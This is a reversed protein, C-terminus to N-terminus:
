LELEALFRNTEDIVQPPIQHRGVFPVWSVPYGLRTFREVIRQAGEFPLVQDVTGHSVLLPIRAEDQTPEEIWVDAPSWMIAARLRPEANQVLNAALMAGQSFGGVVLDLDPFRRALDSLLFKARRVGVVLNSRDRRFWARGGTPLAVPAEPFLLAVEPGVQLVRSLGVLDDGEAGYGHFLVLASKAALLPAGREHLTLGAQPAFEDFDWAAAPPDTSYSIRRDVPSEADVMESKEEEPEVASRESSARCSILGVACVFGLWRM